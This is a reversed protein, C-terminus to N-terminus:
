YILHIGVLPGPSGSFISGFQEYWLSCLVYFSSINEFRYGCLQQVKLFFEETVFKFDAGGTNATNLVFVKEDNRANVPCDLVDLKFKGGANETSIFDALQPL